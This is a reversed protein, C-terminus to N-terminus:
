GSVRTPSVEYRSGVLAGTLSGPGTRGRRSVSCSTELGLRVSILRLTPDFRDSLARSARWRQAVVTRLISAFARVWFTFRTILGRGLAEARWADVHGEVLDGGHKARFDEPLMRVILRYAGHADSLRVSM